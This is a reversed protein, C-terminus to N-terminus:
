RLTWILVCVPSRGYTYGLTGSLSSKAASFPDHQQPASQLFAALTIRNTIRAFYVLPGKCPRRVEFDMLTSLLARSMTAVRVAGLALEAHIVEDLRVSCM